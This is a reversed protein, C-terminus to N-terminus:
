SMLFVPPASSVQAICLAGFSSIELTNTVKAIYVEVHPAVELLIKTVATGHGSSDECDNIDPSTFNRMQAISGRKMYQKIFLDEKSVGSDIIAVRIKRQLHPAEPAGHSDVINELYKRHFKTM